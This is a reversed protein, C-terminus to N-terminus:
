KHKPTWNDGGYQKADEDSINMSQRMDKSDDSEAKSDFGRYGSHGTNANLPNIGAPQGSMNVAERMRTRIEDSTVAPKDPDIREYNHMVKKVDEDETINHAALADEKREKIMNSRFEQQERNLEEQSKKIEEDKSKNGNRLKKFNMNKGRLKELEEVDEKTMEVKEETSEDTSEETSEDTSEDKEDENIDENTEDKKEEEM